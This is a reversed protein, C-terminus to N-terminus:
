FVMKLKTLHLKDLHAIPDLYYYQVKHKIKKCPVAKLMNYCGCRYSFMSTHGHSYDEDSQSLLVALFWGPTWVVFDM